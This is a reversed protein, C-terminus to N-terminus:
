KSEWNMYSVLLYVCELIKNNSIITKEGENLHSAM